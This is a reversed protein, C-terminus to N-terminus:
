CTWPPAGSIGAQGACSVGMKQSSGAKENENIEIGVATLMKAFKAQFGPTDPDRLEELM